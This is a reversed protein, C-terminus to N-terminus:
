KENMLAPNALSIYGCNTCGYAYVIIGSGVNVSKDDGFETLMYASGNEHNLQKVTNQKCSPCPPNM